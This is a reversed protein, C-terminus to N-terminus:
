DRVRAIMCRSLNDTVSGHCFDSKHITFIFPIFVSSLFFESSKEFDCHILAIESICSWKYEYEIIEHKNWKTSMIGCNIDFYSCSRESIHVSLKSWILLWKWSSISNQSLVINFHFTTNKRYWKSHKINAVSCTLYKSPKSFM